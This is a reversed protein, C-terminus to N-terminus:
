HDPEKQGAFYPTGATGLTPIPQVMVYIKDQTTSQQNYPTDLAQLHGKCSKDKMQQPNDTRPLRQPLDAQMATTRVSSTGSPQGPPAEVPAHQPQDAQRTTATVPPVQKKIGSPPDGQSFMSDEDDVAVSDQHM